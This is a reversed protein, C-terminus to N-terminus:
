KVKGRWVTPTNAEERTDGGEGEVKGGNEGTRKEEARFSVPFGGTGQKLLHCGTFSINTKRRASVELRETHNM